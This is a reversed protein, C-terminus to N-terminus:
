SPVAAFMSLFRDDVDLVGAGPDALRKLALALAAADVTLPHRLVGGVHWHQGDPGKVVITVDDESEATDRGTVDAWWQPTGLNVDVSPSGMGYITGRGSSSFQWMDWRDWGTPPRPTFRDVSWAEWKDVEVPPRAYGWRYRAQWLRRGVTLPRGIFPEWFSAGTYVGVTHHLLQDLAACHTEVWAWLDPPDPDGRDEVDVWHGLPLATVGALRWCDAVAEAQEVPDKGPRVFHYSGVALGAATAGTVNPAWMRDRALGDGTRVIAWRIGARATQAWDIRAQHHSVDVGPVYSM